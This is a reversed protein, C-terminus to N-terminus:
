ICVRYEPSLKGSDIKKTLLEMFESYIEQRDNFTHIKDERVKRNSGINWKEYLHIDDMLDELLHRLAVHNNNEFANVAKKGLGVPLCVKFVKQKFEDSFM